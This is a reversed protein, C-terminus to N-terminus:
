QMAYSRPRMWGNYFELMDERDLVTFFHYIVDIPLGAVILLKFTRALGILRDTTTLAWTRALRSDWNPELDEYAIRLCVRMNKPDLKPREVM